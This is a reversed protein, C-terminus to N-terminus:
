CAIEREEEGTIRFRFHRTEEPFLKPFKDGWEVVCIGDGDFYRVLDLDVAEQERELRYFDFHYLPFRGGLYEQILAFTPSSITIEEPIGLGRALGKTFVTKGAGLEGELALVDGAKLGDAIRAGFDRTEDFSKSLYKM